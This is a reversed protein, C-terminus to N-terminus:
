FHAISHSAELMSSDYSYVWTDYKRVYFIHLVRDDPTVVHWPMKVTVHGETVQFVYRTGKKLIFNVLKHEGRHVDKRVTFTQHHKLLSLPKLNQQPMQVEYTLLEFARSEVYDLTPRYRWGVTLCQSIDNYYLTSKSLLVIDGEEVLLWVFRVSLQDRDQCWQKFAAQINEGKFCPLERFRTMIHNFVSNQMCELCSRLKTKSDIKSHNVHLFPRLIDWVDEYCDSIAVHDILKNVLLKDHSALPHLTPLM